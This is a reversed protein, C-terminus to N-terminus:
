PRPRSAHWALTFPPTPAATGAALAALRRGVEPVFKFGHGSFGTAVVVPGVRDLVFDQTPTTTYLCTSAAVAEPVLGPVWEAVYREVRARRAPDPVGSRTDGTTPVGAHHEGVKVLGAPGPLGYRDLGEWHIFAPLAGDDLPRRPRFLFVNEETTLLPPWAAEPVLGAAWAGAAVVAAPADWARGDAATVRVGEGRPAVSAVPTEDLLTAGRGAAGRALADVGDAARVWGATPQHLVDGAFRLAPWRREAEAAPLRETAVGASASVGALADMATGPGHEVCGVRHILPRGAIRGLAAWGEEAALAMDVYARDTYAHRFIREGGHSAGRDHGLAFRELLVVRGTAAAHWATALGMAGGGVVVLDVATASV